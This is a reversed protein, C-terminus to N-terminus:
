QLKSATDRFGQVWLGIFGMQSGAFGRLSEISDALWRTPDEVVRLVCVRCSRITGWLVRCFFFVGYLGIDCRLLVEGLKM